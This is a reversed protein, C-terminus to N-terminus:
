CKSEEKFFYKHIDAYPIQLAGCLERIHQVTLGEPFNRMWRVITPNSYHLEIALRRSSIGLEDMRDTLRNRYKRNFPM